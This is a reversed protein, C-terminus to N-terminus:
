KSPLDFYSTADTVFSAGSRDFISVAHRKEPGYQSSVSAQNLFREARKDHVTADSPNANPSPAAPEFPFGGGSLQSVETLTPDAFSFTGLPSRSRPRDGLSAFLLPNKRVAGM